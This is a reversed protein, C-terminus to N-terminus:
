WPSPNSLDHFSLSIPSGPTTKIAPRLLVTNEWMHPIHPDLVMGAAMAQLHLPLVFAEPANQRPEFGPWAVLSNIRSTIKTDTMWMFIYQFNPESEFTTWFHTFIGDVWVMQLLHVLQLWVPPQSRFLISSVHHISCAGLLIPSSSTWTKLLPVFHLRLVWRSIGWLKRDHYVISYWRTQIGHFCFCQPGLIIPPFSPVLTFDM